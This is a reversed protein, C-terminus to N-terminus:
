AWQEWSLSRIWHMGSYTSHLSFTFLRGQTNFWLESLMSSISVQMEASGTTLDHSAQVQLILNPLTAMNQNKFFLVSPAPHHCSTSPCQLFFPSPLFCFGVGPCKQGNLFGAGHANKLGLFLIHGLFFIMDLWGLDPCRAHNTSLLLCYVIFKM